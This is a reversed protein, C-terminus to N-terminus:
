ICHFLAKFIIQIICSTKHYNALRVTEHTKIKQSCAKPKMTPQLLHTHTNLEFSSSNYINMNGNYSLINKKSIKKISIRIKLKIKIVTIM